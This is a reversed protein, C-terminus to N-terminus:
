ASQRVWVYAGHGRNLRKWQDHPSYGKGADNAFWERKGNPAPKDPNDEPRNSNIGFWASASTLSDALDKPPAPWYQCSHHVYRTFVYDASPEAKPNQDLEPVREKLDGPMAYLREPTWGEFEPKDPLRDLPEFPVGQACAREHMRALASYALEPRPHRHWRPFVVVKRYPGGLEQPALLEMTLNLGPERYKKEYDEKIQRVKDQLAPENPDYFIKQSVWEVSTPPYYVTESAPGYGGGIDSHVGPLVEEVFHPAPSQGPATLISSLPYYERHEHFATLHYVYHVADPNLNLNFQEGLLTQSNDGPIGISGVTDFLGLFRIQLKPGGFYDPDIQLLRQMENVFHRAEAAGRSFGFVDLIGIPSNNYSSFFLQARNIAQNIKNGIDLAFSMDANNNQHGPVTGVGDIYHAGSTPEYTHGYLLSLKGINTPSRDGTADKLDNFLNNGTGDFFIGFHPVRNSINIKPGNDGPTQNLYFFQCGDPRRSSTAHSM